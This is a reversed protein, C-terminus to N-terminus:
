RVAADVTLGSTQLLSSATKQFGKRLANVATGGGFAKRRDEDKFM